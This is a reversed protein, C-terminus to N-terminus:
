MLISNASTDVPVKLFNNFSQYKNSSFEYEILKGYINAMREFGNLKENIKWMKAAM